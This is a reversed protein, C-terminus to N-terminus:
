WPRAAHLQACPMIAVWAMGETGCANGWCAANASTCPVLAYWHSLTGLFTRSRSRLRVISKSSREASSHPVAVPTTPPVPTGRMKGGDLLHTHEGATTGPHDAYWCRRALALAAVFLRPAPDRTGQKLCVRQADTNRSKQSEGLQGLLDLHRTKSAVCLRSAATRLSFMQLTVVCRCPSKM